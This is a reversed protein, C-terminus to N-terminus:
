LTAPTARKGTELKLRHAKVRKSKRNTKYLTFLLLPSFKSYSAEMCVTNLQFGQGEYPAVVLYFIM